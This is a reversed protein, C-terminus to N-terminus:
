RHSNCSSPIRGGYEIQGSYTTKKLELVLFICFGTTSKRDDPCGAWDADSFAHLSLQNSKHLQLGHDMTGKLYRLIRKVAAWHSETPQHMFQSVKNVAFAIDPRTITAYQLGGVVSRYLEPDSFPDGDLRSLKTGSAIPTPCSPKAGDM